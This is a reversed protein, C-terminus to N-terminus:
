VLLVSLDSCCATQQKVTLQAYSLKFKSFRGYVVCVSPQVVDDGVLSSRDRNSEQVSLDVYICEYM